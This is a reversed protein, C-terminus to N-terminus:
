FSIERSRILMPLEYRIRGHILQTIGLTECINKLKDSDIWRQIEVGLNECVDTIGGANDVFYRISIGLDYSSSETKQKIKFERIESGSIFATDSFILRELLSEYMETRTITPEVDLERDWTQVNDCFSLLSCVPFTGIPLVGVCESEFKWKRLMDPYNHFAIALAAHLVISKKQSDLNEFPIMDLMRHASLFGHDLLPSGKTMNDYLPMKAGYRSIVIDIFHVLFHSPDTLESIFDRLLRMNKAWNPEDRVPELSFSTRPILSSILENLQNGREDLYGIDHFLAALTWSYLLQEKSSMPGPKNYLDSIGGKLEEPAEFESIDHLLRYGTWFVNGTHKVHDRLQPDVLSLLVQSKVLGLMLKKEAELNGQFIPSLIGRLSATFLGFRRVSGLKLYFRDLAKRLEDAHWMERGTDLEKRMPWYFEPDHPTKFKVLEEIEHGLIDNRTNKMLVRDAGIRMAVRALEGHAYKTLFVIPTGFKESVLSQCYRFGSLSDETIAEGELVLQDLLKEEEKTLAADLIVIDPRQDCVDELFRRITHEAIPDENPVSFLYPSWNLNKIFNFFESLASADNEVIFLKM